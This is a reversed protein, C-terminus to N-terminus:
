AGRRPTRSALALPAIKDALVQLAPAEADSRAGPAPRAGASPGRRAPPRARAPRARDRDAAAAVRLAHALMWEAGLTEPRRAVISARAACPSDRSRRCRGSPTSSGRRTRRREERGMRDGCRLRLVATFQLLRCVDVFYHMRWMRVRERPDRRVADVRERLSPM